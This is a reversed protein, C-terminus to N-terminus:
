VGARALARSGAAATAEDHRFSFVSFALGWRAKDSLAGQAPMATGPIGFSIAHFARRPSLLDTLEADRFSAPPPDMGKSAPGKGDGQAGHCPVCTEAFTAAARGLEEINPTM